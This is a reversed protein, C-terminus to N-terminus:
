KVKLEGEVQKALELKDSSTLNLAFADDIKGVYLHIMFEQTRTLEM